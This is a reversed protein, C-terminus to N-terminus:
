QQLKMREVAVAAPERLLHVQLAQHFVQEATEVKLQIQPLVLPDQVVVAAGTIHHALAAQEVQMDKIPLALVQQHLILAEVVLDVMLVLQTIHGVAVPLQHLQLFYLTAAMLVAVVQVQHAARELLQRTIQLYQL